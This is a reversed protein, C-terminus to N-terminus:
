QGFLPTRFAGQPTEAPNFGRIRGKPELGEVRIPETLQDIAVNGAEDRVELRLYIQRPSRPDFEWFYQGTNPLGAAIPAFPGDPRDGIALTIPRPGLNADGAEWRIDLKGAAEGQGYAAGTLRSQPRTTDIGVWIDAADDAKPASTALGSKGVIVIRFGYIAEGNVEVDFPSVRDPDAGWKAWTRGGDSTGWLEVASVGEPGVSEVDYDLSFRRSNTLRPRQGLPADVSETDPPPESPQPGPMIEPGPGVEEESDYNGPSEDATGYTAENRPLPGFEEAPAPQYDDQPAPAYQSDPGNSPRSINDGDGSPRSGYDPAEEFPSQRSPTLDASDRVKPPPPLTETENYSGTGDEAPDRPLLREEVQPQSFQPSSALKGARTFPNDVVNPIRVEEGRDGRTPSRDGTAALSQHSAGVQGDAESPWRTASPDTPPAYALGEAAKAKPPTLALRQSFYAVNGGADAVEVRLNISRGSVAPRFTAQGYAQGNPADSKGKAPVAEWAGSESADQYEIKLSGAQLTPDAASFGVAVEGSEQVAAQVLLQPRQTDVVLRLQPQRPEASDTKGSRDITQTAFWFEGDQKPKFRFRGDEPRREDFFHWSRGRDWSVFIRVATPQSEATTGPRVSFPIEVDSQRTVYPAPLGSADAAAGTTNAAPSGAGNAGPAPPFQALAVSAAGLCLLLAVTVERM